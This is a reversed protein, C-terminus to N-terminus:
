QLCKNEHTSFNTVALDVVFIIFILVGHMFIEQWITYCLDVIYALLLPPHELVWVMYHKPAIVRWILVLYQSLAVM